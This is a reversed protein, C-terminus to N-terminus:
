GEETLMKDVMKVVTEMRFPKDIVGVVGAGTSMLPHARERYATVFIVPVDACTPHERLRLVFEVGTEGPMDIDALILKPEQELLAWAEGADGACLPQHGSKTVYSELLNRVEPEDDIILVTAM